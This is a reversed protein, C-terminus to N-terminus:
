KKVTQRELTSSQPLVSSGGLSRRDRVHKVLVYGLFGAVAVDINEIFETNLQKVDRLEVGNVDRILISETKERLIDFYNTEDSAALINVDKITWQEKIEIFCDNYEPLDIYYKM